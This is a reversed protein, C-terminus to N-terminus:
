LSKVAKLSYKNVWDINDVTLTEKIKENFIDLGIFIKEIYVFLKVEM